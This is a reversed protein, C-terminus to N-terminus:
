PILDVVRQHVAQLEAAGGKVFTVNDQGQWTVYVNLDPTIVRQTYGEDELRVEVDGQRWTDVTWMGGITPHDRKVYNDEARIRQFVARIHCADTM